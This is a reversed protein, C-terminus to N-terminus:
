RRSYTSSDGRIYMVQSQSINMSSKKSKDFRQQKYTIDLQEKQKQDLDKKYNEQIIQIGTKFGYKNNFEKISFRPHGKEDISLTPEPGYEKRRNQTLIIGEGIKINDKIKLMSNESVNEKKFRKM